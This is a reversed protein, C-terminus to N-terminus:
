GSFITMQDLSKSIRSYITGMGMRSAFPLRVWAFYGNPFIFEGRCGNLNATRKTGCTYAGVIKGTDDAVTFSTKDGESVEKNQSPENLCGSHPYQEKSGNLSPGYEIVNGSYTATRTCNGEIYERYKKISSNEYTVKDGNFEVTILDDDQYEDIEESKKVLKLEPLKYLLKISLYAPFEKYRGWIQGAVLESRQNKLKVNTDKAVALAWTNHAKENISILIITETDNDDLRNSLVFNLYLYSKQFSPWGFVCAALVAGCFLSKKLHRM